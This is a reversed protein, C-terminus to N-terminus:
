WGIGARSCGTFTGFPAGTVSCARASPTGSYGAACAASGDNCTSVQTCTLDLGTYGTPVIGLPMCANEASHIPHPFM